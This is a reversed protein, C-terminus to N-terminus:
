VLPMWPCEEKDRFDQLNLYGERKLAVELEMNFIVMMFDSALAFCACRDAVELIQIAKPPSDWKQILPFMAKDLQRDSATLLMEKM